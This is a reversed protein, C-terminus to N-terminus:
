SELLASGLLFSCPVLLCAHCARGCSEVKGFVQEGEVAAAGFADGVDVVAARQAVALEFVARAAQGGRQLSGAHPAFLAHQQEHEVAAVPGHAKQAAEIGAHHGDRDVRQERGVVVGVHEVVAARLGRQHRTRQQRAQLLRHAAARMFHVRQDDRLWGARQGCARQLEVAQDGGGLRHCRGRGSSGVVGPKQSYEDPEVPLGLPVTWM